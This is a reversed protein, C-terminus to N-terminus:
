PFRPQLRTDTPVPFPFGLVVAQDRVQDQAKCQSVCSKAPPAVEVSDEGMVQGMRGGSAVDWQSVGGCQQVVEPGRVRSVFPNPCSPEPVRTAVQPSDVGVFKPSLDNAFNIRTRVTATGTKYPLVDGERARFNPNDFYFVGDGLTHTFRTTGGDTRAPEMQFIGGNACDKAQIKMSLGPGTRSIVLDPGTIQVEVADTLTLGRHDPTKSAMVVTRQAGTIDLANPAGTLTWNEVGFSASVVTFEVYRGAVLFSPGLTDAAITTVVDGGVPSAAVTAQGSPGTIAFGGGECGASAAAHAPIDLALTAMAFTSVSLLLRFVRMDQIIHETYMRRGRAMPSLGILGEYIPSPISTIASTTNASM